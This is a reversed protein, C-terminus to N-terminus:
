GRRQVAATYLGLGAALLSSFGALIFIPEPRIMATEALRSAVEGGRNSYLDWIGQLTARGSGLGSYLPIFKVWWTLLLLYASLLAGAAMAIKGLLRARAFVSCLLVILLLTLPQAYWPGASFAAGRTFWFSVAIAYGLSLTMLGALPWMLGEHSPIRKRWDQVAASLLGVAALTLVAAVLDRSMPTFSNNGTWVASRAMHWLAGTWPVLLTASLPSTGDARSAFEHMGSLNGYLLLNRLYWPAALLLPWMSALAQRWPLLLFLILVVWPGAALMSAKTLLASALLATLVMGRRYSPERLLAAGAAALFLFLSVTLWDNAVHATTAYFMQGSMAVFVACLRAARPLDLITALWFLAFASAAASVLGAAIRLRWVRVPLPADGSLKDAIAMVVYALPAQQAEYNGGAPALNRPLTRLRERMASREQRSLRFYEDFTVGGGLNRKLLHSVPVLKLSAAVQGDLASKGMVPLDLRGYDRVVGYHFPEDFGEWLPTLSAYLAANVLAFVVVLWEAPTVQNIIQRVRM